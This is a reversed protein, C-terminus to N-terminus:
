KKTAVSSRPARSAAMPDRPSIPIACGSHGASVPRWRFAIVFSRRSSRRPRSTSFPAARVVGPSVWQEVREVNVTPGIATSGGGSIGQPGVATVVHTEEWTIPILFGDVARYVWRDGVRLAPAEVVPGPTGGPNLGACGGLVFVILTMVVSSRNGLNM